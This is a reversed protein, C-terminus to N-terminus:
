CTVNLFNNGNDDKKMAARNVRGLQCNRTAEDFLSGSCSEPEQLCRTACSLANRLVNIDNLFM